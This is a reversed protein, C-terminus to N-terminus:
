EAIEDVNFEVCIFNMCPADSWHYVIGSVVPMRQLVGYFPSIERTNREIGM